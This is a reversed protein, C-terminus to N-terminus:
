VRPMLASVVAYTNNAARIVVVALALASLNQQYELNRDMTVFVDCTQAALRLLEGNKKGTWGQEAVTAVEFEANFLDKLKRDINKDLLVRAM